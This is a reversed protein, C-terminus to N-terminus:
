RDYFRGVVEPPVVLEVEVIRGSLRVSLEGLGVETKGEILRNRWPVGSSEYLDRALEKFTRRAEGESRAHVVRLVRGDLIETKGDPAGLALVHTLRLPGPAAAQQQPPEPPERLAPEAAVEVGVSSLWERARTGLVDRQAAFWRERVDPHQDLVRRFRSFAGKGSLADALRDAVHAEEVTAAFREM